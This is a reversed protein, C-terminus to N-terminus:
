RRKSEAARREKRNRPSTSPPRRKMMEPPLPPLPSVADPHLGVAETRSLLHGPLAMMAMYALAMRKM